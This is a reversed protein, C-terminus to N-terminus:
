NAIYDHPKAGLKVHKQKVGHEELTERNVKKFASGGIRVPELSDHADRM